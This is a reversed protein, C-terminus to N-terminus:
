RVPMYVDTADADAAALLWSAFSARQNGLKRDHRVDNSHGDSDIRHGDNYHNTVTMKHYTMTWRTATM